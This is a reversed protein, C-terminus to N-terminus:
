SMFIYVCHSAIGLLTGLIPLAYLSMSNIFYPTLVLWWVVQLFLWTLNIPVALIHYCIPGTVFYSNINPISKGEAAHETEVM